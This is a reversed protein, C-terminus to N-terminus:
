RRYIGLESWKRKAIKKNKLHEKFTKSFIHTGDGKAVFYLYDTEAPYLVAEISAKGPSCIPTPPLGRKRYTNYPSDLKLFKLPLPFLPEPLLYQITPDAQLPINRKLRNYYVGAIVKKESDYLAEKEVISALTLIQHLNLKLRYKITDYGLENLAEFLRNIMIRLIKEPSYYLPIEYTDPFLYGELNPPTENEFIDRFLIPNYAIDRLEEFPIGTKKSILKLIKRLEFGEPITIIVKTVIEANHINKLTKIINNGKAIKWEGAVPKFKPSYIKFLLLFINKNHIIKEKELINLFDKLSTGYRILIKNEKGSFNIFPSYLGLHFVFMLFFISFFVPRLM